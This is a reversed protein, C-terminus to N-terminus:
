DLPTQRISRPILPNRAMSATGFLARQRWRGMRLWADPFLDYTGVTLFFAASLGLFASMLAVALEM